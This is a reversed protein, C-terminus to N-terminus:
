RAVSVKCRDCPESCHKESHPEDVEKVQKVLVKRMVLAEGIELIDDM